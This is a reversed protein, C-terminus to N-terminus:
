QMQLIQRITEIFKPVLDPDFQSGACAQMERFAQEYTKAKQYPRSSTMADFSDAITLIRALYCIEEGKLKAPYGTGDYREHHQIVIPVVEEFGEIKEIIRASEQPHSQLNEWEDNTLPHDTILIEKDINIKGLDHLYAAYILLQRQNTELELYDAFKQCLYVVREVHSFTYSDRSHIVTILTKLSGIKDKVSSQRELDDFISSYVEISNRRLFKARYLASDTRNILDQYSDEGCKYEAVGISVTFNGKPMHQQGYFEEDAVAKRIEEALAVAKEFSADRLIITFEEGGYRCLIAGEPLRESLLAALQKLSHDGQQHGYMDNYVKFYDIDLMILALSGQAQSCQLCEQRIKEYFFRHNYVQTLGDINVDNKLQLIKNKEMKVYFGLTWAVIFFIGSLVLDNEFFTNVGQRNGSMVLDMGLLLAASLGSLILGMTMGFEITYLVILFIFSFKYYSAIGGSFLISSFCLLFFIGVEVYPLIRHQSRKQDMVIWLFAMGSLLLFVLVMPASLGKLHSTDDTLQSIYQILPISFFFMALIKLTFFMTKFHSQYHEEFYRM